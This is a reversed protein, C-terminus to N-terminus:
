SFQLIQIFIVYYAAFYSHSSAAMFSPPVLRQEVAYGRVPQKATDELLRVWNGQGRWM